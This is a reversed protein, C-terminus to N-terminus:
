AGQRAAATSPVTHVQRVPVGSYTIPEVRQIPAPAMVLHGIAPRTTSVRPFRVDVVTAPSLNARSRCFRALHKKALIRRLLGALQRHATASQILAAVNEHAVVGRGREADRGAPNVRM